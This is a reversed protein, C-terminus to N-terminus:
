SAKVPATAEPLRSLAKQAILKAVYLSKPANDTQATIILLLNGRLVNLQHLDGGAWIAKDGLGPVEQTEGRALRKLFDRSAEMQRAAARPSSTPRVEIKLIRPQSSNGANYACVRPDRNGNEDELMSSMTSVSGGAYDMAETLPFLKCANIASADFTPGSATDSDQGCASVVAAALVLASLKTALTM